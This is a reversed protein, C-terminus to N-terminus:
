GGGNNLRREVQFTSKATSRPAKEAEKAPLHLWKVLNQGSPYLIRSKWTKGERHSHIVGQGKEGPLHCLALSGGEAVLRFACASLLPGPGSDVLSAYSFSALKWGFEALTGTSRGLVPIHETDWDICFAQTFDTRCERPLARQRQHFVKFPINLVTNCTLIANLNIEM